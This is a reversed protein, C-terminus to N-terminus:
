PMNIASQDIDEATISRGAAPRCVSEGARCWCPTKVWPHDFCFFLLRMHGLWACSALQKKDRPTEFVKGFLCEWCQGESASTHEGLDM